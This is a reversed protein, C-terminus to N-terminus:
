PQWHRMRFSEFAVPSITPRLPRAPLACPVRPVRRLKSVFEEFAGAIVEVEGPDHRWIAVIGANPGLLGVAISDGGEELAFPLFGLM